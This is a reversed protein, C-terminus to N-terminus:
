VNDRVCACVRVCGDCRGGSAGGARAGVARVPSPQRNSAPRAQNAQEELQATLEEIRANLVQTRAAVASASRQRVSCGPTLVGHTGRASGALAQRPEHAGGCLVAHGAATPPLYHYPTPTPGRPVSLSPSPRATLPSPTPHPLSPTPNSLPLTPSPHPAPPRPPAHREKKEDASRQGSARSVKRELAQLPPPALRPRRCTGHQGMPWLGAAM